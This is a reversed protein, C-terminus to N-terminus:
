NGEMEKNLKEAMTEHKKMLPLVKAQLGKDYPKMKWLRTLNELKNELKRMAGDNYSIHYETKCFPCTFYQEKIDDKIKREEIHILFNEKCKDCNVTM